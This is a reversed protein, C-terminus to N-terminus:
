MDATSIDADPGTGGPEGDAGYSLIEYPQGDSGPVLYVYAHKWQDLPLNRSEMYGEEPYQEPIPPTTPARCLAELGQAQTPYASHRMRYLQMASRFTVIQARTAAVKAEGPKNAVNIGVVTALIAMILVAVLLELFTFGGSGHHACQADRRGSGAWEGRGLNM